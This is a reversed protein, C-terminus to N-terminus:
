QDFKIATQSIPWGGICKQVKKTEDLGIVVTLASEYSTPVQLPERTLCNKTIELLRELIMVFYHLIM